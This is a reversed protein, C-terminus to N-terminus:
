IAVPSTGRHSLPEAPIHAAFWGLIRTGIDVISQPDAAGHPMGPYLVLEAPVGMRKLAAYLEQGQSPPVRVDAGGHLIQTPTKVASAHLLPSRQAYLDPQEWVNGGFYDNVYGPIDTTGAFSAIHVIGAGVSAAKFRNTAAILSATLYGGYSWGCIGLRDPDALGRAILFDVGALVDRADGGGWDRLNAFRFARGYGSSGRPNPCLMGFGAGAFAQVPYVSPGGTFWQQFASAPGGHLQVILPFRDGDHHGLPYTLLGEIAPGDGSPWHVIETRALPNAECGSGTHTLRAPKWNNVRGAYVEAATECTEHIICLTRGDRSFSPASYTGNGYTVRQVPSGDVPLAYVRSTTRDLEQVFVRSGDADWSLLTLYRDPTEALKRPTGGTVPVVYVDLLHAWHPDGGDSAFAVWQGDPSIIPSMDIGPGRVVPTVVGTAVEVLSIDNSEIADPSPSTQHAFVIRTGDPSWDLSTVHIQGSTLRSVGRSTGSRRSTDVVHLQAFPPGSDAVEPVVRHGGDPAAFAIRKGDPSWRFFNVGGPVDTLQGPSADDVSTTWVQKNGGAPPAGLFALVDGRPSFAPESCSIGAPSIRLCTAGDVAVLRLSSEFQGGGPGQEAVIVTFAAMTGDYSLATGGVRTLHMM